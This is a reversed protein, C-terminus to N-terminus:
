YYLQSLSLSRILSSVTRLYSWAQFYTLLYIFLCVFLYFMCYDKLDLITNGQHLTFDFTWHFFMLKWIAWMPTGFGSGGSLMREGMKVFINHEETEKGLLLMDEISNLQTVTLVLPACTLFPAFAEVCVYCGSYLSGLLQGGELRSPFAVHVSVGPNYRDFQLLRRDYSQQAWTKERLNEILRFITVTVELLALM